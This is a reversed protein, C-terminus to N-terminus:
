KFSVRMLQAIIEIRNGPARSVPYSIGSQQATVLSTEMATLRGIVSGTAQSILRKQLLFLRPM